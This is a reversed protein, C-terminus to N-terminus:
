GGAGVAGALLSSWQPGTRRPPDDVVPLRDAHWPRQAGGDRAAHACRGRSRSRRLVRARRRRLRELRREARRRALRAHAAGRGAAGDDGGGDSHAAFHDGPDYILATVGSVHSVACGFRAELGPVVEWLRDQVYEEATAPLRAIAGRRSDDDVGFDDGRWIQVQEQQTADIEAILARCDQPSLFGAITAPGADPPEIL